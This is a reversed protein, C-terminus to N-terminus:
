LAAEIVPSAERAFNPAGCKALASLVDDIALSPRKLDAAQEQLVMATEKPCLTLVNLLFNDPSIAEIGYPTLAAEPFDQLNCTVIQSASCRIAAALVHRDKEECKLSAILDEYGEVEWDPFHERLAAFRLRIRDKDKRRKVLNRQAENLIEATWRIACLDKHAMRICTDLLPVSYVINADLVM